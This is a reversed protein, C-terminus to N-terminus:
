WGCFIQFSNVSYKMLFRKWSPVKDIELLAIFVDTAFLRDNDVYHHNECLVDHILSPILFENDTKAGILRWFAKPISAGDWCYNSPINFEYKKSKKHNFLTVKLTAHNKFPYKKASKVEAKTMSPTIVRMTVFPERDFFISLDKSKYWEIM